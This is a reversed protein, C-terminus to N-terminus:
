GPIFKEFHEVKVFFIDYFLAKIKLSVFSLNTSFSKYYVLLLINLQVKLCILTKDIKLHLHSLLRLNKAANLTKNIKM